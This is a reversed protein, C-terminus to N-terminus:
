SQELPRGVVKQLAEQFIENFEEMTIEKGDEHDGLIHDKFDNRDDYQVMKAMADILLSLDEESQAKYIGYTIPVTLEDVLRFSKGLIEITPVKAEEENIAAELPDKPKDESM